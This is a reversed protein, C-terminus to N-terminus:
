QSGDARDWRIRPLEVFDLFALDNQATQHRDTPLSYGVVQRERCPDKQSLPKM